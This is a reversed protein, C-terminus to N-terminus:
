SDVACFIMSSLWSLSRGLEPVEGLAWSVMPPCVSTQCDFSM